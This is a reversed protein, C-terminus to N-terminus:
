TIPEATIAINIPISRLWKKLFVLTKADPSLNVELFIRFSAIIKSTLIKNRSFPKTLLQKIREYLDKM